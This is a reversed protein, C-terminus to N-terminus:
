TKVLAEFMGLLISVCAIWWKRRLREDITTASAVEGQPLLWPLLSTLSCLAEGSAVQETLSVARCRTIIVPKNNSTRLKDSISVKAACSFCYVIMWVYYHEIITSNTLRNQCYTKLFKSAAGPNWYNYYIYRGMTWIAM